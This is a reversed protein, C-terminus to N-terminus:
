GLELSTVGFIREQALEPFSGLYMRACAFVEYMGWRQVLELAAPHNNPVDLFLPGTADFEAMAALLAGAAAADDAFLPGVRCGLSCRRIVGFGALVGDRVCGLALADPQGIWPGLFNPRSAPFCSRDYALVQDFPVEALPVLTENSQSAPPRAGADLCFRLDRHSAVFGGAAYYSEMPLVGDMGIPAGPRLRALLRDRRYHWLRNGLGQRRYEPRMIFFGMFGFEGQYCTIAGGGILEGDLEAAVFAAPDTAWFLSADHRGPNWGEAAAWSVLIEMEPFSMPRIHMDSPM